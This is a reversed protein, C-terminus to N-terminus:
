CSSRENFWYFVNPLNALSQSSRAFGLINYHMELDSALKDSKLKHEGFQAELEEQKAGQKEM